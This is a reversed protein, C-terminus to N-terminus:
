LEEGGRVDEQRQEFCHSCWFAGFMEAGAARLARALGLARPSSLRTVEPEAFPLDFDRTQGGAAIAPGAPGLVLLGSLTWSLVLASVSAAAGSLAPGAADGRERRTMPAFTAAVIAASLAASAYCWACSAGSFADTGNLLFVLSLSAAGLAGAGAAVVSAALKNNNNENENENENEDDDDDNGGGSGGSSSSVERSSSSSAALKASAAAVAAYAAFGLAPLPVFGFLTAFPSDLM